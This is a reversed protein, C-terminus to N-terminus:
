FVPNGLLCNALERIGNPSSHFYKIQEWARYLLLVGFHMRNEPTSLDMNQPNFDEEPPNQRLRHWEQELSRAKYEAKSPNNNRHEHGGVFEWIGWIGRAIQAMPLAEITKLITEQSNSYALLFAALGERRLQHTLVVTALDFYKYSPGSLDWDIFQPHNMGLINRRHLDLHCLVLPESAVKAKFASVYERIEILFPVTQNHLGIQIEEYQDDFRKFTVDVYLAPEAYHIRELDIYEDTNMLGFRWEDDQHMSSISQGLEALHSLTADTQFEGDKNYDLFIVSCDHNTYRIQPAIGKQGMFRSIAAEFYRDQKYLSSDLFRMVYSRHNLPDTLKYIRNLKVSSELSCELLLTIGGMAQSFEHIPGELEPTLPMGNFEYISNQRAVPYIATMLLNM